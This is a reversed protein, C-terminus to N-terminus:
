LEGPPETKLDAYQGWRKGYSALASLWVTQLSNPHGEDVHLKQVNKNKSLVMYTAFSHILGSVLVFYTTLRTFQFSETKECSPTGSRQKYLYRPM